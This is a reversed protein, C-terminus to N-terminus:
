SAQVETVYQLLEQGQHIVHFTLNNMTLAKDAHHQLRQEALTLDETDYEKMQQSLEENWSELDSIVDIADREFIRLQLFLELKIKREQFLEEMQAQAEDLQQLVSEIHAMSSNHPTKNSSIASDRLQQILDEGEKIVNVTVQLTTQQQQGFRKILEQVAEVSEAYVDDLLEKQLEELWTWLEKSHTHFAVSMDLLVKRQEVRRVFDQIRDELQHAAQYIEEPDCEGTQALQEAAELLKDANTYTNQAVEEFDEHRKQLARARHLSKGVGTHKSLFAEGHNEIWDLVMRGNLGMVQGDMWEPGGIWGGLGLVKRGMLGSRDM